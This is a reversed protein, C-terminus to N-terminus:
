HALLRAVSDVVYLYCGDETLTMQAQAAAAIFPQTVEVGEKRQVLHDALRPDQEARSVLDSFALLRVALSFEQEKSLGHGRVEHIVSQAAALGIDSASTTAPPMEGAAVAQFVLM